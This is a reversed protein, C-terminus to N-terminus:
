PSARSCSDRGRSGDRCSDSSCARCPSAQSSCGSRCSSDRGARSSPWTTLRIISPNELLEPRTLAWSFSASAAMAASALIGGAFAISVGPARVGFQNLRTTAAAAFTALPVAAGFQLFAAVLVAVSHERFYGVIAEGDGFPSPYTAGGALVTPLVISAM